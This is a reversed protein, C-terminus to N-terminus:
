TRHRGGSRRQGGGRAGQECSRAGDKANHASATPVGIARADGRKQMVPMASHISASDGFTMGGHGCSPNCNEKELFPSPPNQGRHDEGGEAIVGGDEVGGRVPARAQAARRRRVAIYRAVVM